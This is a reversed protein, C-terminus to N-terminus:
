DLIWHSVYVSETHAGFGPFTRLYRTPVRHVTRTIPTEPVKRTSGVTLRRYAVIARAEIRKTESATEILRICTSWKETSYLKLHGFYKGKYFGSYLM